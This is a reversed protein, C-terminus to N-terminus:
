ISVKRTREISGATCPEVVPRGPVEVVGLRLEAQLEALLGERFHSCHQGEEERITIINVTSLWRLKVTHASKAHCNWMPMPTKLDLIRNENCEIMHTTLVWSVILLINFM